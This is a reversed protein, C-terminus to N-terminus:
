WFIVLVNQLDISVNKEESLEQAYLDVKPCFQITVLGMCNVTYELETIGVHSMIPNSILGPRTVKWGAIERFGSVREIRIKVTWEMLTVLNQSLDVTSLRVPLARRQRLCLPCLKCVPM